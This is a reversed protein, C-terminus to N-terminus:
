KWLLGGKENMEYVSKLKQLNFKFFYNHVFPIYLVMVLFIPYILVGWSELSGLDFQQYIFSTSIGYLIFGFKVLSFMNLGLDESTYKPTKSFRLLKIKFIKSYFWLGLISILLGIPLTIMFLVTVFFTKILFSYKEELQIDPYEFLKNIEAQPKM